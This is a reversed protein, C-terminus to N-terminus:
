VHARGIELFILGQTTKFTSGPPYMGQIARNYLPTLPNNELELYNKGFDRGLLMSPDYTPSTVLCLVEGTSPEIMVISGVKNQMLYEGYAQLEIDISLTLNKGSVPAIDNKGDEYRGQIRGHADRLLIEVGKEGRLYKEYSLEIGSKGGYDGRIYYNDEDREIQDKSVEAVYGLLLGANPHTYQRLARKQVFFGPFKYLKEQLLGSEQSTLQTM